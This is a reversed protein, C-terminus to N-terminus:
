KKQLFMKAIIEQFAPNNFIEFINVGPQQDNSSEEGTNDETYAERQQPPFPLPFAPFSPNRQNKERRNNNSSQQKERSGVSSVASLLDGLVNKDKFALSVTYAIGVWQEIQRAMISLEKTLARMDDIKGVFDFNKLNFTEGLLAPLNQSNDVTLTRPNRKASTNPGRRKPKSSTNYNM